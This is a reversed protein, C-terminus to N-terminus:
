HSVSVPPLKSMVQHLCLQEHIQRFKEKLRQIRKLEIETDRKRVGLSHRLNTIDFVNDLDDEFASELDERLLAPLKDVVPMLLFCNFKLEASALFYERIGHFIQQVLAYVIRESSPALRRNWLTNNLKVDAKPKIDQKDNTVSGFSSEQPLGASISNGSAASQETGGFSDLFQRLGARNLKREFASCFLGLCFLGIEFPICSLSSNSIVKNHLSWTVYRTTSVLDEMCRLALNLIGLAGGRHFDM